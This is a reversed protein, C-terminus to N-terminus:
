QWLLSLFTLPPSGPEAGQKFGLYLVTPIFGWHFTKKAIYTVISIRQKMDKSLKMEL